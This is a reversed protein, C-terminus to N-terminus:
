NEGIQLVEIPGESYCDHKLAAAVAQGASAGFAMAGLAMEHGSGMAYYEAKFSVSGDGEYSTFSGNVHLILGRGVADDGRGTAPAPEHAGEFAWRLFSSVFVAEGSGAAISGDPCKILKHAKFTRVGGASSGSDAAVYPFRFAITTM